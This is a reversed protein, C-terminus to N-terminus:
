SCNMTGNSIAKCEVGDNSIGVNATGDRNAGAFIDDKCFIFYDDERCNNDGFVNKLVKVNDEYKSGDLTGEICFVDGNNIGCAFGRKIKKGDLIHGLFMKRNKGIKDKLEKYDYTFDKLSVNDGYRKSDEENYFSFACDKCDNITIKQKSSCGTIAFIIVIIILLYYEKKM